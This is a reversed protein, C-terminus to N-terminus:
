RGWEMEAARARLACAALALPPTAASANCCGFPAKCLVDVSAFPKTGSRVQWPWDAPVLLAAADLSATFESLTPWGLADMIARDLERSPGAACRTEEALARLTGQHVPKEISM